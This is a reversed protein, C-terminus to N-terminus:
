GFIYNRRLGVQENTLLESWENVESDYGLESRPGPGSKGSMSIPAPSAAAASM